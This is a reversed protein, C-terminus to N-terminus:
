FETIQTIRRAHQKNAAVGTLVSKAKDVGTTFTVPCTIAQILDTKIGVTKVVSQRSITRM